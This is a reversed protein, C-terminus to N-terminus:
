VKIYLCISGTSASLEKKRADLLFKTEWPTYIIDVAFEANEFIIDNEVPSVPRGDGM